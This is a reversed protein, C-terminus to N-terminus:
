LLKIIDKKSKKSVSKQADVKNKEKSSKIFASIEAREIDTLPKSQILFDVGEPEKVLGM